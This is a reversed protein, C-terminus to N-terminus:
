LICEWIKVIEQRSEGREGKGNRVVLIGLRSGSPNISWLRGSGGEDGKGEEEDDEDRLGRLSAGMKVEFELVGRHGGVEVCSFLEGVGWARFRALSSSTLSSSSSSSLTTSGNFSPCFELIVPNKLVVPDDEEDDSARDRAPFTASTTTTSGDGSGVRGPHLRLRTLNPTFPLKALLKAERPILLVYRGRTCNM